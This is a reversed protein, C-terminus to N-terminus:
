GEVCIPFEYGYQYADVKLDQEDVGVPKLHGVWKESSNKTIVSGESLYM